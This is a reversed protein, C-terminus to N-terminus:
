FRLAYCRLLRSLCQGLGAKAHTVILQENRKSFRLFGLLCQNTVSNRKHPKVERDGPPSFPRAPEEPKSEEKHDGNGGTLLNTTELEGIGGPIEFRLLTVVEIFM